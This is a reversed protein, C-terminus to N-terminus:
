LGEKVLNQLASPMGAFDVPQVYNKVVWACEKETIKGEEKLQYATNFIGDGNTRSSDMWMHNTFIMVTVEVIRNKLM